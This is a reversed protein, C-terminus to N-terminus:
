HVKVEHDPNSQPPIQPSELEMESNIHMEVARRKADTKAHSYCELMKRSVRGSLLTLM